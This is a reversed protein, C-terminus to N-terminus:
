HDEELPFSTQLNSNTKTDSFSLHTRLRKSSIEINNISAAGRASPTSPMSRVDDGTIGMFILYSVSFIGCYWAIIQLSSLISFSKVLISHRSM